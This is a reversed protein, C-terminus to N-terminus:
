FITKAESQASSVTAARLATKEQAISALASRLLTLGSGDRASLKVRRIRGCEDFEIAPSVGTLDIKNWVMIQPTDAAGIEALTQEVEAIQEDRAPSASDIVHLILDADATAELTAQFAEVLPHPLDRIFGVTDSLVIHSTGTLWLRRSTAELTAFLQDAVYVDARTLANFLTSKGANTYGSLSVNLAESKQRAKRQIGRQRSLRELREKLLRVRKNLLRRDTELQKEGPGRLGIGGQQRELHSWGRVLRTLLHELQALEVQLKGEASEARLAFIDLILRTRDVIRCELLRELNREQAPSLSHNFIVLDARCAKCVAAIEETKGKGAFTRPDPSHRRGTIEAAVIGGASETLLRLEELREALDPEGFDLQVLVAREGGSPERGSFDFM